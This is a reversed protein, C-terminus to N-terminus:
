DDMTRSVDLPLFSSCDLESGSAYIQMFITHAERSDLEVARLHDRDDDDDLSDAAGCHAHPVRQRRGLDHMHYALRRGRLLDLYEYTYKAILWDGRKTMRYSERHRVVVEDPLDHGPARVLYELRRWGTAEGADDITLDGWVDLYDAIRDRRRRLQGPALAVAM